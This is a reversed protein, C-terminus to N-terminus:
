KSKDAGEKGLPEGAAQLGAHRPAPAPVSAVHLTRTPFAFDIHEEEFRKFLAFNIQQQIDMYLNYDPDLVYYVVEFNLSSDGYEKFHARDFRTRPVAEIIERVMKPIAVLKEYPTDYVTGFGFLIRREYLKRYNHIRSKLLDGNSVVIEEGSLSRVRTSKIGVHEVTGALNDVVIFHGVAFPKDLLISLSAFLDGLINQVALAVAVGGVGLGAILTTINVKLAGLVLLAVLSWLAVRVIFTFAGLTTIAGPDEARRRETIDRAVFGVVQDGWLGLQIFFGIALAAAFKANGRSRLQLMPSGAYLGLLALFLPHTKRLLGVVLDDLRTETRAALGALRKALIRQATRLGVYVAIAIAAFGLWFGLKIGLFTWKLFAVHAIFRSWRQKLDM